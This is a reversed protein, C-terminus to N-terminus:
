EIEVHQKPINVFRVEHKNSPVELVVRAGISRMRVTVNEFRAYDAGLFSERPQLGAVILRQSWPVAVHVVANDKRLQAMRFASNMLSDNALGILGPALIWMGGLVYTFGRFDTPNEGDLRAHDTLRLGSENLRIGRYMALLMGGMAGQLSLVCAYMVIGYWGIRIPQTAVLAVAIAAAGWVPLSWMIRLNSLAYGAAHSPTKKRIRFAFEMPWRALLLGVSTVGLWYAAYAIVFGVSIFYLAVGEGLTIDEPFWGTTVCILLLCTGGIVLAAWRIIATALEWVEKFRQM